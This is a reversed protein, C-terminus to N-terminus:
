FFLLVLTGDEAVTWNICCRCKVEHNYDVNIHFVYRVVKGVMVQEILLGGLIHRFIILGKSAAVRVRLPSYKRVILGGMWMESLLIQCCSHAVFERFASSAALSLCTQSSWTTLEYTLLQHTLDVDTQYCHELLELALEAFERFLIDCDTLFNKCWLM